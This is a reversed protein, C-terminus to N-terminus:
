LFFLQKFAQVYIAKSHIFSNSFFKEISMGEFLLGLVTGILIINAIYIVVLSFIYGTNIIDPQDRRLVDATFILHLALSFGAAFFYISKLGEIKFFLPLIFYLISFILTYTPIFYPSLSIFVNNKTTEVAGGTKEVKFSKVGGGSIWTALVHM